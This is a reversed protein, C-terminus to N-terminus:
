EKAIPTGYHGRASGTSFILALASIRFTAGHIARRIMLATVLPKDFM